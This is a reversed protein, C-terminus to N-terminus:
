TYSRLADFCARTTLVDGAATHDPEPIAHGMEVLRQFVENLGPVHDLKLVWTAMSEVDVLRHHWPACGIARRLFAADFAPNAGVLTVGQLSKALEGLRWHQNAGPMPHFGRGFYDGVKLSVPDAHDLTHPLTMTAVHGDGHAWAVEYAQHVTPDLGTTETDVFCLRWSM